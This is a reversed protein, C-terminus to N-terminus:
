LQLPFIPKTNTYFIQVYALMCVTGFPVRVYSCLFLRFPTTM